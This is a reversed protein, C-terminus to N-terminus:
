EKLIICSRNSDLNAPQSIHEANLRKMLYRVENSSSVNNECHNSLVYFIKLIISVIKLWCPSIKLASPCTRVEKLLCFSKTFLRFAVQNCHYRFEDRQKIKNDVNKDIHTSTHREKVVAKDEAQVEKECELKSM